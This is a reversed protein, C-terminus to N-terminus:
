EKAVIDIMAKVDKAELGAPDRGEGRLRDLAETVNMPLNTRRSEGTANRAPTYSARHGCM